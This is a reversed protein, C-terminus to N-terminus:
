FRGNKQPFSMAQCQVTEMSFRIRDDDDKYIAAQANGRATLHYLGGAFELRLQRAM